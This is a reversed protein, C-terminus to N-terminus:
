EATYQRRMALALALQAGVRANAPVRALEHEHVVEGCIRAAIEVDTFDAVAAPHLFQDQPLAPKVFSLATVVIPRHDSPDHREHHTPQHRCRQQHGREHVHMGAIVFPGDHMGMECPVLRVVDVMLSRFDLSGVVVAV